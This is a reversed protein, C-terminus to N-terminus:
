GDSPEPEDADFADADYVFAPARRLLPSRVNRDAAIDPLKDTSIQREQPVDAAMLAQLASAGNNGSTRKDIILVHPLAGEFIALVTKARGAPIHGLLVWAALKKHLRVFGEPTCDESELLQVLEDDIDTTIIEPEIVAPPRSM